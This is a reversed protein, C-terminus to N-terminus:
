QCDKEHRTLEPGVRSSSHIIGSLAASLDDANRGCGQPAPQYDLQCFYKTFRSLTVLDQKGGRALSRRISQAKPPKNSPTDRLLDKRSWITGSHVTSKPPEHRRRRRGLTTLRDQRPMQPLEFKRLARLNNLEVHCKTSPMPLIHSKRQYHAKGFVLRQHPTM